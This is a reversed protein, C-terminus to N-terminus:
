FVEITKEDTEYNEFDIFLDMVSYYPKVKVENKTEEIIRLFKIERSM